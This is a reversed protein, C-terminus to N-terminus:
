YPNPVSLRKLPESVYESELLPEAIREAEAIRILIKGDDAVRVRVFESITEQAKTAMQDITQESRVAETAATEAAITAGVAAIILIAATVGIAIEMKKGAVEIEDKWTIYQNLAYLYWLRALILEAQAKYVEGNEIHRKAALLRAYANNWIVMEPKKSNFVANTVFGAFSKNALDLQTQHENSYLQYEHYLRDRSDALEKLAERQKNKLARLAQNPTSILFPEADLIGNGEVRV